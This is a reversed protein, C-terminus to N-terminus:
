PSKKLWFYGGTGEQSVYILEFFIETMFLEMKEIKKFRYHVMLHKKAMIEVQITKKVEISFKIYLQMPSQMVLM